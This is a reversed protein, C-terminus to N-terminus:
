LATRSLCGTKMLVVKNMTLLYFIMSKVPKINVGLTKM